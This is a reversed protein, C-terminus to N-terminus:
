RNPACINANTKMISSASDQGCVLFFGSEKPLALTKYIMLGVLMTYYLGFLLM